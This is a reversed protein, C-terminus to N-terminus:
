AMSLHARRRDNVGAGAALPTPSYGEVVRRDGGGCCSWGIGLTWAVRKDDHPATWHELKEKTWMMTNDWFAIVKGAFTLPPVLGGARARMGAFPEATLDSRAALVQDLQSTFIFLVLLAFSMFFFYALWNGRIWLETLHKADTETTLGSNISGFAVIGIVGIIVIITGQTVRWDSDINPLSTHICVYIDNKTVPTNVLFRAFLFNFILSTSGLPAVYEAIRESHPTCSM